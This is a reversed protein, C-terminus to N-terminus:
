CRGYLEISKQCLVITKSYLNSTKVEITDKRSRMQEKLNDITNSLYMKKGTTTIVFSKAWYKSGLTM